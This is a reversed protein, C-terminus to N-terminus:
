SSVIIHSRKDNKYDSNNQLVDLQVNLFVATTESHKIIEIAKSVHIMNKTARDLSKM